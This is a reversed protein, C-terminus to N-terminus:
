LGGPVTPKFIRPAWAMTKQPTMALVKKKGPFMVVGGFKRWFYAGFKEISPSFRRTIRRHSPPTYLCYTPRAPSFGAQSLVDYLQHGTYPTGYGFPTTTMQSWAGRRNPAVVLIEGGDRTVRWAEQLINQVHDSFELAHFFVIRDVSQDLLPWETEDVLAVLNKRGKPWAIAGQPAPMFSIVREAEGRFTDLFPIGFGIGLVVEGNVKPWIEELAKLIYRQALHGLSTSYFDSLKEADIWM